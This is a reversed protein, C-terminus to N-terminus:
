DNTVDALENLMDAANVSVSYFPTASDLAMVSNWNAYFVDESVSSGEWEYTTVLDGSEEDFASFSEASIDRATFVGDALSYFNLTMVGNNGNYNYFMGSREIYAAGGLRSLRCEVVSGSSDITCVRDGEAEFVGGVYLEPIDDDDVYVLAYTHEVVEGIDDDAIKQVYEGYIEKWNNYVGSYTTSEATTIEAATTPEATTTETTTEITAAASDTSKGGFGILSMLSSLSGEWECIFYLSTNERDDWQGKSVSYGSGTRSGNVIVGYNQIGGNDPEGSGWNSYAVTEGTIWTSWDGESDKDTIGIYFDEASAYSSILSTIFDNEEESTITALHGGLAECYTEAEEWTVANEYVLYYNGNFESASSPVFGNYVSSCGGFAFLATIALIVCIIRKAKKMYIKGKVCIKALKAGTNGNQQSKLM